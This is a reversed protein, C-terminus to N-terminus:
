FAMRLTRLIAIETHDALRALKQYKLGADFPQLLAGEARVGGNQFDGLVDVFDEPTQLGTAKYLRAAQALLDAVDRERAGLDFLVVLDLSSGKDLVLHRLCEDPFANAAM